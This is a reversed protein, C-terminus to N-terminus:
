AVAVVAGSQVLVAEVQLHVQALFMAVAVGMAEVQHALAAEVAVKRQSVLFNHHVLAKAVLELAVVERHHVLCVLHARVLGLVLAQGQAKV